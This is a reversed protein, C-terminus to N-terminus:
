EAGSRVGSLFGRFLLLLLIVVLLFIVPSEAVGAVAKVEL